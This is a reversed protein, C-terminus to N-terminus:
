VLWPVPTGPHALQWRSRIKSKEAEDLDSDALQALVYAIAAQQRAAEEGELSAAIAQVESPPRKPEVQKRRWEPLFQLYAETALFKHSDLSLVRKKRSLKISGPARQLGIVWQCLSWDEDRMLGLYRACARSNAPRDHHQSVWGWRAAGLAGGAQPPFPPGAPGHVGNSPVEIDATGQSTGQEDGQQGQSMAPVDKAGARQQQKKLRWGERLEARERAYQGTISQLWYPHFFSGRQSRLVGARKLASVIRAPTGQFDLKAALHEAAYGRVRGTLADGVELIFEEWLALYGLATARSIRLDRALGLVERPDNSRGVRIAVFPVEGRRTRSL